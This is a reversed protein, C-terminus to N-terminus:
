YKYQLVWNLSDPFPINYDTFNEPTILIRAKGIIPSYAFDFSKGIFIANKYVNSNCTVVKIEGKYYVNCVFKKASRFNSAISVVKGKVIVFNDKLERNVYFAWGTLLIAGSFFISWIIKDRLRM